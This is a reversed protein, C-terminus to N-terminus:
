KKSSRRISLLAEFLCRNKITYLQIDGRGADTEARRITPSSRKPESPSRRTKSAAPIPSTSRDKLSGTRALFRLPSSSRKGSKRNSSKSGFSFSPTPLSAQRSVSPSQWSGVVSASIDRSEDGEVEPLIYHKHLFPTAVSLSLRSNGEKTAYERCTQIRQNLSSLRLENSSLDEMKVNVLADVKYALSGLHDVSNVLAKTAYEKVTNVVMHKRDHQRYSQEFHQAASYLQAKLDKLEKLSQSFHRRQTLYLQDLNFGRNDEVEVEM